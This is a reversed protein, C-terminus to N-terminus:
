DVFSIANHCMIYVFLHLFSHIFPQSFTIGLPLTPVIEFYVVVDLM